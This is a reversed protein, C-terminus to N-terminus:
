KIWEYGIGIFYQRVKKGVARISGDEFNVQIKMKQDKNDHQAIAVSYLRQTRPVTVPRDNMDNVTYTGSASLWYQDFLFINHRVTGEFVLGDTQADGVNKRRYGYNLDIGLPPTAFRRTGGFHFAQLLPIAGSLMVM